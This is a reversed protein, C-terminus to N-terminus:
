IKKLIKKFKNLDKKHKQLGIFFLGVKQCKKQKIKIQKKLQFFVFFTCFRSFPVQKDRRTNSASAPREPPRDSGPENNILQVGSCDYVISM